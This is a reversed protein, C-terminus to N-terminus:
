GAAAGSQRKLVAAVRAEIDEPLVSAKVIYDDAGAALGAAIEERQGLNSIIMVPVARWRAQSKLERLFSIGDVGPLRVDLLVLDVTERKLWLWAERVTAAVATRYQKGALYRKLEGRLLEDDEVILVRPGSGEGNRRAGGGRLNKNVIDVVEDPNLDVKILYDRVGLAKAREIEVPQGSNSIIVVPLQPLIGEQQLKELIAMGGKGPLLMDLLMLDPRQARVLALGEPGSAAVAVRFGATRLKGEIINALAPEDEILAVLPADAAQKVM